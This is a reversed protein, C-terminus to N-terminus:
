NSFGQRDLTEKLRLLMTLIVLTLILHVYLDNKLEKIGYFALLRIYFIHFSVLTYFSVKYWPIPSIFGLYYLLILWSIFSENLQYFEQNYAITKQAVILAICPVLICLLYFNSNQGLKNQYHFFVFLLLLCVPLCFSHIIDVYELVLLRLLMNMSSSFLCFKLFPTQM